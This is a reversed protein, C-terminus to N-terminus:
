SDEPFLRQQGLEHELYDEIISGVEARFIDGVTWDDDTWRPYARNRITQWDERTLVAMHRIDLGLLANIVYLVARKDTIGHPKLLSLILKNLVFRQGESTTTRQRTM